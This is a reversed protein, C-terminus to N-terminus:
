IKPLRTVIAQKRPARFDSGMFDKHHTLNAMYCQAQPGSRWTKIKSDFKQHAFLESPDLHRKVAPAASRQRWQSHLLQHEVMKHGKKTALDLATLGQKNTDKTQAGRALLENICDNNGMAAAVHLPSNGLPTKAMIDAGNQLLFQMMKLYGRHAAIFLAVNARASIWEAKKEASLRLSHPTNYTTEATVGLCKLKAINGEAAAKVLDSWGDYHWIGLAITGGPIIGMFQFTAYDPMDGDDIYSVRQLQIPIGAALELKEKLDIVKTRRSCGSVTFREGTECLRIKNHFEHSRKTRTGAPMTTVVRRSTSM